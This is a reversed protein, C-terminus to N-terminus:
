IPFNVNKFHHFHWFYITLLKRELLNFKVTNVIENGPSVLFFLSFVVHLIAESHCITQAGDVTCLSQDWLRWVKPISM